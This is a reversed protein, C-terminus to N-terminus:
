PDSMRRRDGAIELVVEADGDIRADALTVGDGTREFRLDIRADGLELGTVEVHELWRPLSPRVIRLRRNLADPSLGLGWKLLFPISGAAWAQPQCAVPYPVPEDFEARPFGGFLEPLRYDAFRSAAELLGEFILTFDEDFGYRRLGFAILASDHPWVSGTHYGVPNYAPHSQALTRVGWGTFMDDGMLVDRICRAREDSVVGAWLLHGQNSTLGSGPRKDRDLGIAYCGPDAVWFSELREELSDAEGRLREARAGDGDLDFLRAMLRKARIVYGQVEVLAVPAQLPEGSDGPVGDFSDKWGQTVLGNPSRRLYEVLGDGDLDGYRDIWELAADVPGRLERFLDLNGSWDAHQCLLCLFLPTADVSGYYRAFPTEGLAAPEGVRLEHLVKGPEEDREDDYERGLRSALLRLTGEAIGPVFSLTQLATIISDRGFLTAFWPVGAAYYSQGDLESHLLELDDLSRQLIRNFLQDDSSVRTGEGYPRRPTLPPVAGDGQESVEIDVVLDIAGRAELDLDFLLTGNSGPRPPPEARVTTTRTVGDRGAASFSGPGGNPSPRERRPVIGRLELMPLFDAGVTLELPLQIPERHYSRVAITQRLAGSADARRELRIRLSEAPLREGGPLDLDPNTLEHVSATGEADTATLLRPPEGCIRLEHACLFRCDRFWLGLPHDVGAPLRGDRLTVMFVNGDKIVITEALNPISGLPSSM